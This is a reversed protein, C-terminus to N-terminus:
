ARPTARLRDEQAALWEAYPYPCAGPDPLGAERRWRLLPHDRRPTPLDVRRAYAASEFVAMLIEMVHRAAEGGSTHDRDEDLARVFEDVYGYEDSGVGCGPDYGDPYVPALRQWRCDADPADRAPWPAWWAVDQCWGLQGETGHLVLWRTRVDTEPLHHQVWLASLGGDFHLTSTLHEGVITGMGHPSRVVDKPQIPRDGVWGMGTVHRCPGTFALMTNVMHTGINMLEFGGYYGKCTASVYRPQGIRGEGLARVMTRVADGSRHQHHVALRLHQRDATALLTDAQALDTCMPKEVDVHVGHGLVRLTLDCHSETATAIAVLDPRERAMMTDLDDYRASVGLAEGLAGLREGIRDCLAVVQTRPHVHYAGATATGRPGCGVVAVRYVRV